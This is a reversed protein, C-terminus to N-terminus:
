FSSPNGKMVTFSTIRSSTHKAQVLQLLNTKIEFHDANIEPLVIAEGYEETSARLLEEMTREAMPEVEVITRLELKVVNPARGRNRRRPITVNSNNLFNSNKTRMCKEKHMLVAGLGKHSADCYVVFNESGEPLALIPASCLKKKLLQFTSDKNEEWEVKCEESDIQNFAERDKLFWPQSQQGKALFKRSKHVRDM